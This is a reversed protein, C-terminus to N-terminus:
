NIFIHVKCLTTGATHLSELREDILPMCTGPCDPRLIQVLQERSISRYMSPDTISIGEQVFHCVQFRTTALIFGCFASLQSICVLEEEKKPTTAIM